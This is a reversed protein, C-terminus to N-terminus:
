FCVPPRPSESKAIQVAAVGVGGAAAHVLVTEGKKANARGVLAEYSTPYAVYFAAGQEYSLEAPLPLLSSVPVAVQEAYAGLGRGMVRDSTLKGAPLYSPLEGGRKFPCGKPIHSNQAIRGSFEVGLVFPLPPKDTTLKVCEFCSVNIFTKPKSSVPILQTWAERLTSSLPSLLRCSM